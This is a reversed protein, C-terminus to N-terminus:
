DFRKSGEFSGRRHVVSDFDDVVVIDGVPDVAAADVVIYDVAVLRDVEVVIKTEPLRRSVEDDVAAAADVAAVVHSHKQDSYYDFEVGAVDAGVLSDTSNDVEVHVIQPTDKSVVEQQHLQQVADDRVDPINTGIGTKNLMIKDHYRKM